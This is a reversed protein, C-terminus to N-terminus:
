CNQNMLLGGDVLFSFKPESTFCEMQTPFVCRDLINRGDQVINLVCCLLHQSLWGGSSLFPCLSASCAVPLYCFSLYDVSPLFLSLFSSLFSAPSEPGGFFGPQVLKQPWLTRTM